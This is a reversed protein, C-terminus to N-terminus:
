THYEGANNFFNNLFDMRFWLLSGSNNELGSADM